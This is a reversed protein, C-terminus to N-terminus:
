VPRPAKSLTVLHNFDQLTRQVLTKIDCETDSDEVLDVIPVVPPPAVGLCVVDTNEALKGKVIEHIRQFNKKHERPIRRDKGKHNAIQSVMARM